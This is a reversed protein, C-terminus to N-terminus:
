IIRYPSKVSVCLKDEIQVYTYTTYREIGIYLWPEIISRYGSSKLVTPMTTTSRTYYGIYNSYFFFVSRM